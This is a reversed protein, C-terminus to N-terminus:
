ADTDPEPQETLWVYFDMEEVLDLDDDLSMIEIAEVSENSVTQVPLNRDLFTSSLLVWVAVGIISATAIGLAAQTQWWHPKTELAQVRARHLRSLTAADLAAAKNDLAQKLQKEFAKM